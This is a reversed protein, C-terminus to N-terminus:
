ESWRENMARANAKRRWLDRRSESAAYAILLLFVVQAFEFKTLTALAMMIFFFFTRGVSILLLLYFLLGLMGFELMLFVALGADSLSAIQRAVNNGGAKNALEQEVGFPGHGIFLPIGSREFVFVVAELRIGYTNFGKEVQLLIENQFVIAFIIALVGFGFALLAIRKVDAMAYIAYGVLLVSLVAALTSFSFFMAAAAPIVLWDFREGRRSAVSIMSLLFIASAVNSPEAFLGTLRKSGLGIVANEGGTLNQARSVTGTFMEFLDIYVGAGYFSAFQFLFVGLHAILAVRVLFVVEEPHKWTYGKLYVFVGALVARSIFNNYFSGAAQASTFEVDYAWFKFGFAALAFMFVVIWFFSRKSLTLSEMPRCAALMLVGVIPVFIPFNVLTMLFVAVIKVGLMPWKASLIGHRENVAAVPAVMEETDRVDLM